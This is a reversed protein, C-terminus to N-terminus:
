FDSRFNINIHTGINTIITYKSNSLRYVGALHIAKNYSSFYRSRLAGYQPSENKRHLDALESSLLEKFSLKNIYGSIM